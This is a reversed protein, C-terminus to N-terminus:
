KSIVIRKTATQHATSFTLMYVGAPQASLDVQFKNDNLMEDTIVAIEQGMLNTVTIKLKESSPMDAQVTFKGSNPNPYISIAKELGKADGIGLSTSCPFEYPSRVWITRWDSYGINGSKDVAKYRLSYPGEVSSGNTAAWDGETTVTIDAATYFNDDVDYGADTYTGWRCVTANPTGKLSIEPETQDKVVIYRTRSVSNNGMDTAM